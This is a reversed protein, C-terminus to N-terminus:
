KQDTAGVLYEKILNLIKEKKPLLNPDSGVISIYETETAPLLDVIQLALREPVGEEILKRKLEVSQDKPLKITLNLFQILGQVVQSEKAKEDTKELLDKVEASTIPVQTIVKRAM